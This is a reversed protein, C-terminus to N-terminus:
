ILLPIVSNLLSNFKDLVKENCGQIGSDDIIFTEKIPYTNYKVFSELTKELLEARNCSTIVMTVEDNNIIKSNKVHNIIHKNQNYLRDDYIDNIDYGKFYDLNRQLNEHDFWNNIDGRTAKIKM